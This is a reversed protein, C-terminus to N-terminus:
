DNKEPTSELEEQWYPYKTTIFKYIPGFFADLEMKDLDIAVNEHNKLVLKIKKIINGEDKIIVIKQINKLDFSGEKDNDKFEIKEKTLKLFDNYNNLGSALKELVPVIICVTACIIFQVLNVEFELYIFIFIAPISCYILLQATLKTRHNRFILGGNIEKVKIPFLFEEWIILLMIIVATGVLLMGGLIERNEELDHFSVTFIQFSLLCSIIFILSLLAISFPRPYTSRILKPM